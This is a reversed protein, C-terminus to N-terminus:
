FDFASTPRRMYHNNSYPNVPCNNFMYPNFPMSRHFSPSPKKKVPPRSQHQRPHFMYQQQNFLPPLMDLNPWKLNPIMMKSNKVPRKSKKTNLLSVNVGPFEDLTANKQKNFGKLPASKQTMTQGPLGTPLKEILENLKNILLMNVDKKLPMSALRAVQDPFINAFPKPEYHSQIPKPIEIKSRTYVPKSFSINPPNLNLESELDKKDSHIELIIDKLKNIIVDNVNSKEKEIGKGFENLHRNAQSQPLKLHQSKAEEYYDRLRQFHKSKKFSAASMSTDTHNPRYQHTLPQANPMFNNHDTLNPKYQPQPTMRSAQPEFKREKHDKHRFYNSKPNSNERQHQFHVPTSSHDPPYLSYDPSRIPSPAKKVKARSNQHNSNPESYKLQENGKVIHETNNMDFFKYKNLNAKDPWIVNSPKLSRRQYM